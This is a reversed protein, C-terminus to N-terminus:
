GPRISYRSVGGRCGEITIGRLEDLREGVGIIRSGLLM